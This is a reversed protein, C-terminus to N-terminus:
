ENGDSIEYRTIIKNKVEITIKNPRCCIECDVIEQYIGEYVDIFYVYKEFCTYCTIEIEM